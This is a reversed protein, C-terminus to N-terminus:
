WRSAVAELDSRSRIRAPPLRDIWVETVWEKHADVLEVLDIDGELGMLRPWLARGVAVPGGRTYRYKPVTVPTASSQHTSLISRISAEDVDPAALEFVVATNLDVSRWMTDLGARLAASQGERWDPDIILTSGGLDVSDIVDDARPGLVVTADQIGASRVVTVLRQLVSQDRWRGLAMAGGFGEGEASAVILAGVDTM